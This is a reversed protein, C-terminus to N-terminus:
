GRLSYSAVFQFQVSSFPFFVLLWLVAANHRPILQRLRAM